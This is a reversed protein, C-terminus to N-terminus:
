DQPNKSKDCLSHQNVQHMIELFTRYNQVRTVLHNTRDWLDAAARYLDNIDKDDLTKSCVVNLQRKLITLQDIIGIKHDLRDM